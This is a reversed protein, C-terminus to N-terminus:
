VENYKGSVWVLAGPQWVFVYRSHLLLSLFYFIFFKFSFLILSLSVIKQRKKKKRSLKCKYEHEDNAKVCLGSRERMCNPEKKRKQSKHRVHFLGTHLQGSVCVCVLVRVFSRFWLPRHSREIRKYEYTYQHCVPPQKVWSICEFFTLMVSNTHSIVVVVVKEWQEEARVCVCM